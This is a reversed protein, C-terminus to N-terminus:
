GAFHGPPNSQIQRGQEGSLTTGCSECHYSSALEDKGIDEMRDWHPTLVTHHCELEAVAASSGGRKLLKDFLGM